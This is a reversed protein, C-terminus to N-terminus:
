RRCQVGGSPDPNPNILKGHHQLAMFHLGDTFSKKPFKMTIFPIIGRSAHQMSAAMLLTVVLSMGDTSVRAAVNDKVYNGSLLHM